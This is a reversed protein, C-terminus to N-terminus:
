GGYRRAIVLGFLIHLGGFGAVLVANAWSAPTFLAASGLVLFMLGMLPVPRVSFTGGACVAAGYLMLWVAPILDAGGRLYLASTLLAGVAIAPTFALAFKRAAPSWMSQEASRAKMRTTALSVAFAIVATTLWAILWRDPDPQLSAVTAGGVGIAGVAVQGWGSVATFSGANEMTRRIYKLEELAQAGGAAGGEYPPLPVEIRARRRLRHSDM